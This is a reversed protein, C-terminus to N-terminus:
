VTRHAPLLRHSRAIRVLEELRRAEAQAVRRGWSTLKYYRRRPDDRLDGEVEVIWGDALMQKLMPYLRGPRLQVSGNTSLEVEKSIGYGHLEGEALVLLVQFVLTNLPLLSSLDNDQPM